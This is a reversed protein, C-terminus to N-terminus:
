EDIRQGDPLTSPTSLKEDVCFFKLVEYRRSVREMVHGYGLAKHSDKLAKTELFLKWWHNFFVTIGTQIMHNVFADRLKENEVSAGM